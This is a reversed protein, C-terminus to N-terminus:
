RKVFDKITNCDINKRCPNEPKYIQVIDKIPNQIGCNPSSAKETKKSTKVEGAFTLFNKRTKNEQIRELFTKLSNLDPLLTTLIKLQKTCCEGNVM